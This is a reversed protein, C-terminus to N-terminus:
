NFLLQTVLYIGFFQCTTVPKVFPFAKTVSVNFIMAGLFMTFYIMLIVIFAFMFYQGSTMNINDLPNSNMNPNTFPSIGNILSKAMKMIATPIPPIM